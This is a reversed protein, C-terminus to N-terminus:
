KTLRHMDVIDVCEIVAQKIDDIDEGSFRGGGSPLRRYGSLGRWAYADDNNIMVNVCAIM